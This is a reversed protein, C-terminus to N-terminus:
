IKCLFTGALESIYNMLEYTHYLGKPMFLGKFYTVVAEVSTVKEPSICM